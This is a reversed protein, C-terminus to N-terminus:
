RVLKRVMALKGADYPAYRMKLDILTSKKLISKRHSFAEFSARGHYSGMGSSGVGGFPLNPNGAHVLTDNVCGGGFSTGTLVARQVAKNDSFLYLSLPKPRANVFGIAEDISSCSLVPVIPGFIEEKMIAADPSVDMLITPAIYREGADHEGGLFVKQGELLRVLREYQNRNIIRGFDPSASPDAGYMGTVAGKLERLFEDRVSSHVICYDPCICTQGANVFKGWAIRKAALPINADEDVICPSKGGLELTVPTLHKAAAEMVIAGLAPSGTFFIADFRLGLLEKIVERGGRFVAIYSPPFTEAILEEIVASTAESYHAPHLMACNGAAIAGVLPAILLQFPYNWPAIILSVGYPERMIYSTGPFAKIGTGVKEPKAWRKVNKIHLHLEEYVGGVEILYGEFESKRLDTHLASLIQQERNKIAARLKKLMEIRFYVDKTKGSNFFARQDGLIKEIVGGM